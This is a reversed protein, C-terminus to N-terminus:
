EVYDLKRFKHTEECKNKSPSRNNTEPHLMVTIAAKTLLWSAQKSTSSIGVYDLKAATLFSQLWKIEYLWFLM